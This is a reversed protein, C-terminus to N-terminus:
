AGCLEMETPRWEALYFDEETSMQTSRFQGYVLRQSQEKEQPLPLTEIIWQVLRLREVFPLQAVQVAIQEISSNSVM